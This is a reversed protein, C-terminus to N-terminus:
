RKVLWLQYMGSFLTPHRQELADWQAVALRDPERHFHRRALEGVAQPVDLAAYELQQRKAMAVWEPLHRAVEREHFLLDRLGSTVHFDPSQLLPAPLTCPTEDLLRRRWAHMAGVRTDTGAARIRQRLTDIVARARASYVALHFLGQPELVAALAALGAEPDPLHHLVGTCEIADYRHPLAEVQMLDMAHFEINTLGAEESKRMAHALSHHSFDIAVLHAQPYNDRALFLQQGTGCGAILVTKGRKNVQRARKVVSAPFRAPAGLPERVWRPYPHSEYQERVVDHPPAVATAALQARLSGEHLREGPLRLLPALQPWREHALCTALHPALGSHEVALAACTLAIDAGAVEDGAQLRALCATELQQAQLLTEPAPPEIGETLDHQMALALALHIPASTGRRHRRDLLMARLRAMLTQWAPDAIPTVRALVQFVPHRELYFAVAELAADPVPALTLAQSLVADCGIYRLASPALESPRAWAQDLALCLMVDIDAHRFLPCHSAMFRGMADRPAAADPALAIASYLSEFQDKRRGCAGAMRASALLRDLKLRQSAQM